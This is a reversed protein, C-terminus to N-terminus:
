RQHFEQAETAALGREITSLYEELEAKFDRPIFM